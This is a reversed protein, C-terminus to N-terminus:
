SEYTSSWKFLLEIIVSKLRFDGHEDRLICISRIFLRAHDKHLSQVDIGYSISIYYFTKVVFMVVNTWRKLQIAILHNSIIEGFSNSNNTWKIVIKQILWFCFLTIFTQANLSRHWWWFRMLCTICTTYDHQCHEWRKWQEYHEYHYHFHDPM